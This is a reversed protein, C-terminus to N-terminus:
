DGGTLKLPTCSTREKSSTGKFSQYRKEFADRGLATRPRPRVSNTAVAQRQGPFLLFHGTFFIVRSVVSLLNRKLLKFYKKEQSKDKKELFRPPRVSDTSYFIVRSFFSGRRGPAIRPFFPNPSPPLTAASSTFIELFFIM